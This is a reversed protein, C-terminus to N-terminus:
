SEKVTAVLKPMPWLYRRAVDEVCERCYAQANPNAPEEERSVRFAHFQRGHVACQWPERMNNMWDTIPM